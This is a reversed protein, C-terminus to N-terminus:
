KLKLFRKWCIIKDYRSFKFYRAVGSLLRYNKIIERGCSRKDEIDCSIPILVNV